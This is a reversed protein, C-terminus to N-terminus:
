DLEENNDDNDELFKIHNAKSNEVLEERKITKLDRLLDKIESLERMIKEQDIQQLRWDFALMMRNIERRSERNQEIAENLLIDKRKKFEELEFITTQM